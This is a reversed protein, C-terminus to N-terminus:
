FGSKRKMCIQCFHSAPSHMCHRIHSRCASRASSLRCAHVFGARSLVLAVIGVCDLERRYRRRCASGTSLGRIRRKVCRVGGRQVVHAEGPITVCVPVAGATVQGPDGFWGRVEILREERSPAIRNSHGLAAGNGGSPVLHGGIPCLAAPRSRASGVFVIRLTAPWSIGFGLCRNCSVPARWCSCGGGPRTM